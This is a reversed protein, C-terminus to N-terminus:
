TIVLPPSVFWPGEINNVWSRYRFFYEPASESLDPQTVKYYVTQSVLAVGDVGTSPFAVYAGAGNAASPDYYFWGQTSTQTMKSTVPASFDENISIQIQFHALGTIGEPVPFAFNFLFVTSTAAQPGTTPPRKYPILRKKLLRKVTFDEKPDLSVYEQLVVSSEIRSKIVDVSPIKLKQGVELTFPDSINNYDLILWWLEVTDFLRHSINDPRDIDRADVVYIFEPIEGYFPPKWETYRTNGLEDIVLPTDKFRSFKSLSKM